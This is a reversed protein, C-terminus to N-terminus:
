RPPANPGHERLRLARWDESLGLALGGDIALNAGTVYSSADSALWLAAGVIDETEGLRGMPVSDVALRMDREGELFRRNIDTMVWGPTIANARVGAAGWELALVQTLSLVATKAATYAALTPWPRNAVVSAVNIISGSRRDVMGQGVRRCFRFVSTLNLDILRQWGEDRLALVPANFIPGGANNVLVDIRGFTDEVARVCSEIQEGSTVDCPVAVARRGLREIGGAVEELAPRSRATVAVDAGAEAYARAIAAGIGRSAGTVLAVKGILSFRELRVPEVQGSM